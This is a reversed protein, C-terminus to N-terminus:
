DIGRELGVIQNGKELGRGVDLCAKGVFAWHLEFRGQLSWTGYRPGKRKM